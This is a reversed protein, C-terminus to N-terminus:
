GDMMGDILWDMGDFCPFGSRTRAKEICVGILSRWFHALDELDSALDSDEKQVEDDHESAQGETPKRDFLGVFPGVFWCVWPRLM